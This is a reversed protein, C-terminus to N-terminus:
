HWEDSLGVHGCPPAGCLHRAAPGHGAGLFPDRGVARFPRQRRQILSRGSGTLAFRGDASLALATVSESEDEFFPLCRGSATDWVKLQGCTFLREGDNRVLFLAGGSLAFRGDPSLAVSHVPSTHGRLIRLLRGAAVDWLHVTGDVSGSVALRADASLAVSTLVDLDERCTRLCDGTRVDWLKITGDNSASLALGGNAALATSTVGGMDGELTHLCRAEAPEWLKLTRDASGSLALRGDRSLCVSTM